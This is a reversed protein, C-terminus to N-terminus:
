KDVQDAFLKYLMEASTAHYAKERVETDAMLRSIKGLAQIHEAIRDAPSALLIVLHVPQGDIADFDLPESPLGIAMAPENVSPCKGHPIALGEGIGTSRQDEREWVTRKLTEISGVGDHCALLDCLEDIVARKTTGELPVKVTDPRLINLLQVPM